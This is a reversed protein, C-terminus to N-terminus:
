AVRPGEKLQGTYIFQVFARGVEESLNLNAKSKIAELHQNEVMVEFVSSAAALVQKHCAVEVGNFVLTFNTDKMQEYLNKCVCHTKPVDSSEEELLKLDVGPVEVVITVLFDKEKYADTCQPHSLFRKFGYLRKAEIVCSEGNPTSWTQIDTTFQIKVTIDADSYNQLFIGM